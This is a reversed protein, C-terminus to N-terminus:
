LQLMERRSKRSVRFLVKDYQLKAVDHQYIHRGDRSVVLFDIEVWPGTFETDGSRTSGIRASENDRDSHRVMMTMLPLLAADGYVVHIAV